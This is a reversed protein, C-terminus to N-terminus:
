MFRRKLAEREAPPAADLIKPLADELRRAAHLAQVDFTKELLDRLATLRPGDFDAYFAARDPWPCPGRLWDPVAAASAALDDVVPPFSETFPGRKGAPYWIFHGIGLSPFDEDKSWFTLFEKKGGAENQFIKRGIDRAQAATLQVAGAPFAAFLVA